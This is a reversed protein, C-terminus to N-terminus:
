KKKSFILNIIFHFLFAIGISGIGFIFLRANTNISGGILVLGFSGLVIWNLMLLIVKITELM